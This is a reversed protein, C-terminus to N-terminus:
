FVYNGDEEMYCIHTQNFFKCYDKFLIYFIGDNNVCFDKLFLQKEQTNRIMNWFKSDSENGEGKWETNGWPNRLKLVRM